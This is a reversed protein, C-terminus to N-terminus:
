KRFYSAWCQTGNATTPLSTTHTYSSSTSAHKYINTMKTNQQHKKIVKNVVNTHIRCQLRQIINTMANDFHSILQRFQPKQFVGSALHLRTFSHRFTQVNTISLTGVCGQFDKFTNSNNEGLNLAKFTSSFRVPAQFHKFKM